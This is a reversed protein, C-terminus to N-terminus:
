SEEPTWLGLPPQQSHISAGPLKDKGSYDVPPGLLSLQLRNSVKQWSKSETQHAILVAEERIRRSQHADRCMYTDTDVTHLM